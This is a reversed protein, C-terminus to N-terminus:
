RISSCRQTRGRWTPAGNPRRGDLPHESSSHLLLLCRRTPAPKCPRDCQMTTLYWSCRCVARARRRSPAVIRRQAAGSPRRQPRQSAAQRHRAQPDPGRWENAARAATPHALCIHFAAYLQRALRLTRKPPATLQAHPRQAAFDQMSQSHHYAAKIAQARPRRPARFFLRLTRDLAGNSRLATGAAVEQWSTMYETCTGGVHLVVCAWGLSPAAIPGSTSSLPSSCVAICGDAALSVIEALEDGDARERQQRAVRQRRAREVVQRPLVPSVHRRGSEVLAAPRELALTRCARPM